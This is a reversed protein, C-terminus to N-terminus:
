DTTAAVAAVMGPSIAVVALARQAMVVADSLSSRTALTLGIV